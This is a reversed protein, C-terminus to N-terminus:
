HPRHVYGEILVDSGLVRVNQEVLTALAPGAAVPPGHLGIAVPAVYLQVYDVLGEDWAARHVGAGGELVVSQIGRRALARLAAAMTADVVELTAGARELAEAREGHLRM